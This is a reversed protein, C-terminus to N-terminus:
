ACVFIFLQYVFPEGNSDIVGSINVHSRSGVSMTLANHIMDCTFGSPVSTLLGLVANHSRDTSQNGQRSPM